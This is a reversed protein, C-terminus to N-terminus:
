RKITKTKKFLGEQVPPLGLSEWHDVYCDLLKVNNFGYYTLWWVRSGMYFSREAIGHDEHKLDHEFMFDIIEKGGPM